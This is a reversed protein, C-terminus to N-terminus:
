RSRGGEDSLVERLLLGHRDRIELSLLPAPNLKARPVPVYTSLFFVLWFFLVALLSFLSTKRLLRKM